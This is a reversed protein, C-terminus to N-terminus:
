LSGTSHQDDTETKNHGACVIWMFQSTSSERNYSGWTWGGFGEFCVSQAADQSSGIFLINTLGDASPTGGTGTLRRKMEAPVHGGVALSDGVYLVVRTKSPSKIKAKVDLEIRREDLLAHNLGYLRVTMSHVGVDSDEPTWIYRKGYAAGRTCDIEIDYVEPHVANVIGKYFLEFTDNVVLEYREPLKLSVTNGASGLSTELAAIRALDSDNTRIGDFYMYYEYPEYPLKLQSHLLRQRRLMNSHQRKRPRRPPRPKNRLLRAVLRLRKPSKRARRHKGHRRRAALPM